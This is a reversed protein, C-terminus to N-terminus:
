MLEINLYQRQILTSEVNPYQRQILTLINVSVACINSQHAFYRQALIKNCHQASLNTVSDWHLALWHNSDPISKL